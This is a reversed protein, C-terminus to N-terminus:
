LNVIQTIRAHENIPRLSSLHKKLWTFGKFGGNKEFGVTLYQNHIWAEFTQPAGAPAPVPQIATAKRAALNQTAPVKAAAPPVRPSEVATNPLTNPKYPTTTTGQTTDPMPATVSQPTIPAATPVATPIVASPSLLPKTRAPTSKPPGTTIARAPTHPPASPQLKQPQDKKEMSIAREM